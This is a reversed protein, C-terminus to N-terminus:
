PFPMWYIRAEKDQKSISQMLPADHHPKKGTHIMGIEATYPAQGLVVKFLLCLQLKPVQVRTNCETKQTSFLLLPRLSYEHKQM